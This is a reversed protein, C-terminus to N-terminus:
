IRDSTSLWAFVLLQTIVAMGEEVALQVELPAGMYEEVAQMIGVSKRNDGVQTDLNQMLEKPSTLEWVVATGSVQVWAMQALAPVLKDMCTLKEWIYKSGEWSLGINLVPINSAILPKAPILLTAQM